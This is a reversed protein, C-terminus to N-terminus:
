DIMNPSSISLLALIITHRQFDNFWPTATTYMHLTYHPIMRHKRIKDQGHIDHVDILLCDRAPTTAEAALTYSASFFDGQDIFIERYDTKLRLPTSPQWTAGQTDYYSM